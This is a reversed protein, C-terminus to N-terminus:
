SIHATALKATPHRFIWATELHWQSAVSGPRVPQIAYEAFDVHIGSIWPPDPSQVPIKSRIITTERLLDPM